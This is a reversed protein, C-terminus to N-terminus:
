QGWIKEIIKPQLLLFLAFCFYIFVVLSSQKVAFFMYLIEYLILAFYLSQLIPIIANKEKKGIHWLLCLPMMYQFIFYLSDWVETDKGIAFYLIMFVTFAVGNVFLM